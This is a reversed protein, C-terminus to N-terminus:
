RIEIIGQTSSVYMAGDGAAFQGGADGPISDLIRHCSGDVRARHTNGPVQMNTAADFYPSNRWYVFVGDSVIQQPGFWGNAVEWVVKRTTQDYAVLFAGQPRPEVVFVHTADSAVGFDLTEGLTTSTGGNMPVAHLHGLTLHDQAFVEGNGLALWGFAQNVSALLLTSGQASARYLGADARHNLSFFLTEDATVVFDALEFLDIDNMGLPVPVAIDPGDIRAIGAPEAIHPPQRDATGYAVFLKGAVARLIAVDHSTTLLRQPPGGARPLSYIRRTYHNADYSDTAVYLMTDDATYLLPTGLILSSAAFLKAVPEACGEGGPSPPRGGVGPPAPATSSPPPVGAGALGTAAGSGDDPAVRGNCGAVAIIAVLLAFRM